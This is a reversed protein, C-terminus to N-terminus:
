VYKKNNLPHCYHAVTCLANTEHPRGCLDFIEAIGLPRDCTKFIEAIGLLRSCIDGTCHPIASVRRMRPLALRCLRAADRRSTNDNSKTMEKIILNNSM